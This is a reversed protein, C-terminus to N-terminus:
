CSQVLNQVKLWFSLALLKFKVSRCNYICLLFIDTAKGRRRGRCLAESIESVESVESVELIESIEAVGLCRAGGLAGM